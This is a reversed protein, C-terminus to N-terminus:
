TLDTRAAILLDLDDQVEDSFSECPDALLVDGVIPILTVGRVFLGVGEASQETDDHAAGSM